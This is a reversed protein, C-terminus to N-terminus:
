YGFEKMLDQVEKKYDEEVVTYMFTNDTRSVTFYKGDTTLNYYSYNKLSVTKHSSSSGKASEFTSQNQMFAAKASDEDPMVYFELQYNDNYALVVEEVLGAEFQNTADVVTYGKEEMKSRFDEASIATREKGVCGTLLLLVAVCLLLYKKM